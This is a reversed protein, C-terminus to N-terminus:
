RRRGKVREDVIQGEAVFRYKLDAEDIPEKYFVEDFRDSPAILIGGTDLEVSTLPASRLFEDEDLQFANNVLDRYPLHSIVEERAEASISYKDMIGQISHTQGMLGHVLRTLAVLEQKVEISSATQSAKRLADAFRKTGAKSTTKLDSALFERIWYDAMRDNLQRDVAFGDWFDSDFSTGQYLAAKYSFANKMFVREIFEVQLTDGLPEALIGVDAPFRSLVIKSKGDDNGLILFFLGLKSRKTTFDRLRIALPKGTELDPNCIFTILATRVENSQSGDKEHLFRIPIQCESDSRSFVGELMSFLNGSLPLLAGRVDEPNKENKGPHVLYSAVSIIDM